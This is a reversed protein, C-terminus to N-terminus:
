SHQQSLLFINYSQTCDVVFQFENTGANENGGTTDNLLTPTTTNEAFIEWDWLSSNSSVTLTVTAGDPALIVGTTNGANNDSTSVFQGNDIVIQANAGFGGTDINFTIPAQCPTGPPPCPEALCCVRKELRRLRREFLEPTM